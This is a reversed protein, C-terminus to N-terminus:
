CKSILIQLQLCSCQVVKAEICKLSFLYFLGYQKTSYRGSSCKTLGNCLCEIPWQYLLWTVCCVNFLHLFWLYGSCLPLMPRDGLGYHLWQNLPDTACESGFIEFLVRWASLYIHSVFLVWVPLGGFGAHYVQIGCSMIYATSWRHVGVLIM